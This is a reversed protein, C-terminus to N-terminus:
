QEIVTQHNGLFQTSMEAITRQYPFKDNHQPEIAERVERRSVGSSCNHLHLDMRPWNSRNINSFSSIVRLDGLYLIHAAFQQCLESYKERGQPLMSRLKKFEEERIQLNSGFLNKAHAALEGRIKRPYESRSEGQMGALPDVDAQVLVVLSRQGPDIALPPADDPTDATKAQALSDPILGEHSGLFRASTEAITRQYPFEDNHQPEIAERVERRSVGTRCNHLHLDLRPWNSGSLASFSSVFRLDGIYLLDTGTQQCLEPYKERGQPLLSRLDDIELQRISVRSGFLNSAHNALERRLKKPYESRSEGHMGGQPNVDAQVLVAMSVANESATVQLPIASIFLLALGPILHANPRM